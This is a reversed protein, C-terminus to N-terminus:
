PRASRESLVVVGGGDGVGSWRLRAHPRAPWTWPARESAREESTEATDTANSRARPVSAGFFGPGVWGCLAVSTLRRGQTVRWEAAKAGRWKLAM